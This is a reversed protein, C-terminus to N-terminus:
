GRVPGRLRRLAAEAELAERVLRRVVQAAARQKPDFEAERREIWHIGNRLMLGRDSAEVEPRPPAGIASAEKPQRWAPM